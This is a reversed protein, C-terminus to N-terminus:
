AQHQHQLLQPRQVVFTHLNGPSIPALQQVPPCPQSVAQSSKPRPLAFDVTEKHWIQVRRQRRLPCANHFFTSIFDVSAEREKHIRVKDCWWTCQPARVKGKTVPQDRAQGIACPFSKGIISLHEQGQVRDTYKSNSEEWAITGRRLHFKALLHLSGNLM